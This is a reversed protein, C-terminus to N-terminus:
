TMPLEFAAIEGLAEGYTAVAGDFLQKGVEVEADDGTITIENGRVHVTAELHNEILRLLEDGAGLLAVMSQEGPVRVHATVPIISVTM